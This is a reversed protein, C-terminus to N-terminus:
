ILVQHLLAHEMAITLLQRELRGHIEAMLQDNMRNDQSLLKPFTSLEQFPQRLQWVEVEVFQSEKFHGPQLLPM